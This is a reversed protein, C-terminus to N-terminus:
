SLKMMKLAGHVYKIVIDQGGDENCRVELENRLEVLYECQMPTQDSSLQLGSRVFIKSRNNLVATAHQASSLTVKLRRPKNNNKGLGSLKVASVPVDTPSRVLEKLITRNCIMTM